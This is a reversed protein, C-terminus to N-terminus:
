NRRRKCSGASTIMYGAKCEDCVRPDSLCDRCNKTACKDCSGYQRRYGAKCALCEKKGDCETCGNKNTECQRTPRACACSDDATPISGTEEMWVKKCAEVSRGMSACGVSSYCTNLPLYTYRPRNKHNVGRKVCKNWTCLNAYLTGESDTRGDDVCIPNWGGKANAICKAACDYDIAPGGILFSRALAVKTLCLALLVALLVGVPRLM